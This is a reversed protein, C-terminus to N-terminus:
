EKVFRLLGSKEEGSMGYVNYTGPAFNSVNIESTNSGAILYLSERKMVRGQADTIVLDVKTPVAAASAIKLTNGKIPNPIIGVLAFGKVANILAVINSYTVKGDADTIKLRYYNIGSLPQADTYDFPQGCRAADATISYIESFNRQDSSREM